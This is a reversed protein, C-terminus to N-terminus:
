DSFLNRFIDLKLFLISIITTWIGTWFIATSMSKSVIKESRSKPREKMYESLAPEGGLALAALTDMIMNIWLIQLITLPNQVGTFPAIVSILVASININLQFKLFKKINNYITRGYLVAKEISQFNYYLIINNLNKYKYLYFMIYFYLYLLYIPIQELLLIHYRNVLHIKYIM